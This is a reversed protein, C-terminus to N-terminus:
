AQFRIIDEKAAARNKEGAKVGGMVAYFAGAPSGSLCHVVTTYFGRAKLATLSRTLLARGLGLGQFPKLVYLAYIEGEGGGSTDRAPGYLSIGVIVGGTEATFGWLGDALEERLRAATQRVSEIRDDRATEPLQGTYTTEWTYAQVLAIGLADEPLADRITM